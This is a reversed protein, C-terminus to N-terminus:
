ATQTQTAFLGLTDSSTRTCRRFEAVGLIASGSRKGTTHKDLYDRFICSRVDSFLWFDKKGKSRAMARIPSRARVASPCSASHRRILRRVISQPACTVGGGNTQRSDCNRGALCRSTGKGTKWRSARRAKRRRGRQEERWGGRARGTMGAPLGAQELAIIARHRKENHVLSTGRRPKLPGFRVEFDRSSREGMSSTWGVRLDLQAVSDRRSLYTTLRTTGWPVGRCDEVAVSCM